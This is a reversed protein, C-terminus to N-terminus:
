GQIVFFCKPKGHLSYSASSIKLIQVFFIIKQRKTIRAFNKVNIIAESNLSGLTFHTGLLSFIKGKLSVGSVPITFARKLPMCTVFMTLPLLSTKGLFCRHNMQCLQHACRVCKWKKEDMRPDFESVTQLIVLAFIAMRIQLRHSVNDKGSCTAHCYYKKIRIDSQPCSLLTANCVYIMSFGCVNTFVM